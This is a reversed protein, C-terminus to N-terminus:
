DYNYFYSNRELIQVYVISFNVIVILVNERGSLVVSLKNNKVIYAHEVNILLYRLVTKITFM